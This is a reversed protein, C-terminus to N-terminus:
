ATHQHRAKPRQRFHDELSLSGGCGDMKISMKDMKMPHLRANAAVGSDKLGGFWHWAQSLASTVGCQPPVEPNEIVFESYALGRGAQHEASRLWEPNSFQPTTLTSGPQLFEWNDDILRAHSRVNFSVSIMDSISCCVAARQGAPVMSGVGVEDCTRQHQLFTNISSRAPMSSAYAVWCAQGQGVGLGNSMCDHSKM